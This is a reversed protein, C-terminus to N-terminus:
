RPPFYRDITDRFATANVEPFSAKDFFYTTNLENLEFRMALRGGNAPKLERMPLAVLKGEQVWNPTFQAVGYRVKAREVGVVADELTGVEKGSSDVIPSKLMRSALVTGAAAETAAPLKAPDAEVMIKGDLMKLGSAPLAVVRDGVAVNFQAVQFSKPDIALDRVEGLPKGAPDVVATGILKTLRFDTGDPGKPAAPAAPAAPKPAAGGASAPRMDSAEFNAVYNVGKRGLSAPPVAVLSAPDHWAPIFKIVVAALKGDAPSVLLDDVEGVRVGRRDIIGAKTLETLRQFRVDAEATAGEAPKNFDPWQSSAFGGLAEVRDRTTALTARGAALTLGDTPIPFAALYDTVGVISGVALVVYAVRAEKTDVVLDRVAGIVRGNPAVVEADLLQHARLPQAPAGQQAPAALSVFTLLVAVFISRM